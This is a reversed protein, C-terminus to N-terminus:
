IEEDIIVVTERSLEKGDPDEKFPIERDYVSEVPAFSFDTDVSRVMVEMHDPFKSLAAKLTKVTM